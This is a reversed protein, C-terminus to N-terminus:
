ATGSGETASGLMESAGRARRPLGVRECLAICERLMGVARDVDGSARRQLLMWAHWRSVDPEAPVHPTTRSVHLANIFHTEALDWRGGAAAAIGSDCELTSNVNIASGM